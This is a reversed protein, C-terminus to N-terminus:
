NRKSSTSILEVSFNMRYEALSINPACSAAIRLDESINSAVIIGRCPGRDLNQNVWGMYYLLQGIVKNRGASLKLEIVVMKENQDIALIDIRGGEISFEVGTIGNQDYLRLGPELQNLNKALFDRLHAELAFEFATVQEATVKEDDPEINARLFDDYAESIKVCKAIETKGRETGGQPWVNSCFDEFLGKSQLLRIMQGRRVSTEYPLDWEIIRTQRISSADQSLNRSKCFDYAQRMPLKESNSFDM